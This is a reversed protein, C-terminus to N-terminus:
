LLLLNRTAASRPIVFDFFSSSHGAHRRDFNRLGFDAIGWRRNTQILGRKGTNQNSRGAENRMFCMAMRPEVPDIPRLV